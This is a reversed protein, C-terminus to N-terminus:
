AFTALRAADVPAAATLDTPTFIWPSGYPLYQLQGNLFVFRPANNKVGTRYMAPDAPASWALVTSTLIMLNRVFAAIPM